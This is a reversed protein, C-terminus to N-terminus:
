LVNPIVIFRNESEPAQGLMAGALDPLTNAPSNTNANSNINNNGFRNYFDPRVRNGAEVAQATPPLESIPAGFATADGDAAKMAAFYELMLEFAPLAARAEEESLGLHALSATAQLDDQVMGYLTM